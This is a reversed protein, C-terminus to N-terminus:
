SHTPGTEEEVIDVLDIFQSSEGEPSKAEKGRGRKKPTKGSIGEGGQSGSKGKGPKNTTLLDDLAKQFAERQIPMKLTLFRERKPPPISGDGALWLTPTKLKEISRPVDTDSKGDTGAPADVIILDCEQLSKPEIEGLSSKVEVDHQPFLYLSVAQNLIRKPGILLIKGM